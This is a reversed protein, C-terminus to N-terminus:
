NGLLLLPSDFCRFYAEFSLAVCELRDDHGESTTMGAFVPM